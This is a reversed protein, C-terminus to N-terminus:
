DMNTFRDRIPFTIVCQHIGTHLTGKILLAATILNTLNLIFQLPNVMFKNNYERTIIYDDAILLNSLLQLSIDM